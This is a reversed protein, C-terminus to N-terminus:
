SELTDVMEQQITKWANAWALEGTYGEGLTQDWSSYSSETEVSDSIDVRWLRQGGYSFSTCTAHPYIALVQQKDTM